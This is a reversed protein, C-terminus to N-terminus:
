RATQQLRSDRSGKGPARLAREPVSGNRCVEAVIKGLSPPRGIKTEARELVGSVFNEDGLIQGEHNGLHFEERRGEGMGEAVFESYRARARGGEKGFQSLVWDTTLWPVREKGIYNRHGSWRYAAPNKVM